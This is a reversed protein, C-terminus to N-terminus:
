ETEFAPHRVRDGVAIDLRDASGGRLELVGRVPQGASIAQLSHPTTREAIHVIRGDRKIFLMDLPIYTNKMWMTAVRSTEHVFLMGRDAALERRHMLGQRQQEPTRAVEVTFRHVTGDASEIALEATPFALPGQAQAGADFGTMTLATLMAVLAARRTM